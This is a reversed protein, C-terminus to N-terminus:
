AVVRGDVIRIPAPPNGQILYLGIQVGNNFAQASQVLYDYFEPDLSRLYRPKVKYEPTPRTSASLGKSFDELLDRMIQRKEAEPFEM